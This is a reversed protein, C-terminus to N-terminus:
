DARDLQGIEDVKRQLSMRDLTEFPLATFAKIRNLLLGYTQQFALKKQAETGEAKLPDPLGWHASMPQGPWAPCEENAAHDCVTFIFDMKPADDAAFVTVDKSNFASVDYGKGELLAIVEPHPAACPSTGASYAKFKGKGAENLIAEAIISRASNGTCIFLANLPRQDTPM